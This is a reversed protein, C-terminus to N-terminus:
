LLLTLCAHTEYFNVSFCVKSLPM